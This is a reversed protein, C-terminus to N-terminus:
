LALKNDEDDDNYYTQMCSIVPQTRNQKEKEQKFLNSNNETDLREEAFHYPIEFDDFHPMEIIKRKQSLRNISLYKSSTIVFNESRDLLVNKINLLSKDKEDKQDHLYPQKSKMLKGGGSKTKITLLRLLERKKKEINNDDEISEDVM